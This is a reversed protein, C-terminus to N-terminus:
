KLLKKKELVEVANRVHRLNLNYKIILEILANEKQAHYFIYYRRRKM